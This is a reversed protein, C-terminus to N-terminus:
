ERQFIVYSIYARIKKFMNDDITIVIIANQKTGSSTINSM